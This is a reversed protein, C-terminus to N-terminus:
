AASRIEWGPYLRRAARVASAKRTYGESAAMIEGNAGIARWYWPQPGGGHFIVIHPM